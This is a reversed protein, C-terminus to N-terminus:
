MALQEDALGEPIGERFAVRGRSYIRLLGKYMKKMASIIMLIMKNKQCSEDEKLFKRESKCEWRNLFLTEGLEM